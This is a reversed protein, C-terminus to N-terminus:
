ADAPSASRSAAIFMHAPLLLQANSRCRRLYIAHPCLAQKLLGLKLRIWIILHGSGGSSNRRAQSFGLVSQECCEAITKPSEELETFFGSLGSAESRALILSQKGDFTERLSFTYGDTFQCLLELDNMMCSDFQNVTERDLFQNFPLIIELIPAFDKHFEATSSGLNELFKRSGMALFEASQTRM